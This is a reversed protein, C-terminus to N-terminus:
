SRMILRYVEVFQAIKTDNYKIYKCLKRKYVAKTGTYLMKNITNGSLLIILAHVTGRFPLM